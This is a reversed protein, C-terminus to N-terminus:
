RDRREGKPAQALPMLAARLITQMMAQQEGAPVAAIKGRVLSALEERSIVGKAALLDGLGMILNIVASLAAGLVEEANGKNPDNM